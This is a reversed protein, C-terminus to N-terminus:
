GRPEVLDISLFTANPPIVLAPPGGPQEKFFGMRQAMKDGDRAVLKHIIQMIAAEDEVVNAAGQVETGRLQVTVPAGGRLNKWWSSHTFVYLRNAEQLYGVPITYQTGSKRGTFSLLILRGSMMGHLPSHLVAGVIPNAIQYMIRPMPPGSQAEPNSDAM